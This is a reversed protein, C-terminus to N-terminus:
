EPSGEVLSSRVEIVEGNGDAAAVVRLSWEAVGDMRAHVRAVRTKGRPLDAATSFAALVIREGEVLARPDYFAPERYAAHEGGEVGVLTSAGARDVLQVQWAGLAAGDEAELVIDVWGFRVGVDARREGGDGAVSLAAMSVGGVLALLMVMMMVRHM